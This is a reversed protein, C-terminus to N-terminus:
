IPKECSACIYSLSEAENDRQPSFFGESASEDDPYILKEVEIGDLSDLWRDLTIGNLKLGPRSESWPTGAYLQAWQRAECVAKVNGVVGHKFGGRIIPKCSLRLLEPPIRHLRAQPIDLFEQIREDPSKKSIHGNEILCSEHYWQRCDFRPCFHMPDPEDPNYPQNCGSVCSISSDLNPQRGM